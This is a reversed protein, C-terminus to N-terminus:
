LNITLVFRQLKSYPCRLFSLFSVSNLSLSNIMMKTKIAMHMFSSNFAVLNDTPLVNLLLVFTPPLVLPKHHFSLSLTLAFEEVFVSPVVLPNPLVVHHMAPSLKEIVVPLQGIFPLPVHILEMAPALDVIVAGLHKLILKIIPVKVTFNLPVPDSVLALQGM